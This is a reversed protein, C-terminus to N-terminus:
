EGGELDEDEDPDVTVVVEVPLVIDSIESYLARFKWFGKKAWYEVSLNEDTSINMKCKHFPVGQPWVLLAERENNLPTWSNNKFLVPFVQSSSKGQSLGFPLIEKELKITGKTSNIVRLQMKMKKRRNKIKKTIMIRM